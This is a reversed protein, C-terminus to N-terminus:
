INHPVPEKRSFLNNLRNYLYKGIKKAGSPTNHCNDYFDIKIDFDLEQELDIFICGNNICVKKTRENLLRIMYYYDVGNISHGDYEPLDPKGFLRGDIFDYFRRASQTVFIPISGVSEVKKCLINLRQEYADLRDKMITEYNSLRPQEEWDKTSFEQLFRIDNHSLGYANALRMGEITRYLHYLASKAKIINIRSTEVLDDYSYNDDIHFDNVGIYFLFYKVKLEYIYPFWWDFNKIHGFTSQGGIGANVVYVKKGNNNFENQLINQFTYVDSIFHQDTTSGGITLIDINKVDPYSGRFGWKDRTYVISCREPPYLGQINYHIRRDKIIHLKNLKNQGFWDGFIIEVIILLLILFISNFSVIKIYNPLFKKYNRNKLFLIGSIILFFDVIGWFLIVYLPLQGDSGFFKLWTFQNFLIAFLLCLIGFVININFNNKM